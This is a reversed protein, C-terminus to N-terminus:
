SEGDPTDYSDVAAILATDRTDLYIEPHSERWAKAADIVSQARAAARESKDWNCEATVLDRRLRENEATLSALEDRLNEAEAECVGHEYSM